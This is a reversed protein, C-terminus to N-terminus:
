FAVYIIYYRNPLYHIKIKYFIMAIIINNNM